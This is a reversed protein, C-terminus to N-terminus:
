AELGRVGFGSSVHEVKSHGFCFVTLFAYSMRANRVPRM